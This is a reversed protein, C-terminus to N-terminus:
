SSLMELIKKMENIPIQGAASEEGTELSSFTLYSGM